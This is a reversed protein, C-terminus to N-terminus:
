LRRQLQLLLPHQNCHPQRLRCSPQRFPRCRLRSRRQRPGPRRQRPLQVRRPPSRARCVTRRRSFPSSGSPHKSCQLLCGDRKESSSEAVLLIERSNDENGFCHVLHESGKPPRQKRDKPPRKTGAGEPTKAEPGEPAEQNRGRRPGNREWRELNSLTKAETTAISGCGRAGPCHSREFPSCISVVIAARASNSAAASSARTTVFRHGVVLPAPGSALGARNHPGPRSGPANPRAVAVPAPPTLAAVGSFWAFLGTLPTGPGPVGPVGKRGSAAYDPRITRRTAMAMRTVAPKATELEAFRRAVVSCPPSSRIRAAKPM